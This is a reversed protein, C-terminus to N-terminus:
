DHNNLNIPLGMFRGDRYVPHGVPTNDPQLDAIKGLRRKEKIPFVSGESFMYVSKKRYTLTDPLFPTAMWGGRKLLSYYSKELDSNTLESLDSPLYLGLNLEHSANDPLDLDLSAAMVTFQGNGSARDTGIGCEGLYHFVKELIPLKDPETNVLVFLGSNDQFFFKDIYYPDPDPYSLPATRAEDNLLPEPAFYRENPIRVQQVVERVWFMEEDLDVKESVFKGSFTYDDGNISGIKLLESFAKQDFFIGRKYKKRNKADDSKVIRPLEPRPFFYLLENDKNLYPFASSVQVSDFPLSQDLGLEMAAVHLASRVTDSRLLEDSVDYSQRGRSIHLPSTFRLRFLLFTNNM